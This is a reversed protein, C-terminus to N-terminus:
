RPQSPTAIRPIVTFDRTFAFLSPISMSQEDRTRIESQSMQDPSSAMTSFLVARTGHRSTTTDFQVSDLRHLAYLSPVSVFPPNSSITNAFLM